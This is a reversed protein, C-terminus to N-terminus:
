TKESALAMEPAAIRGDEQGFVAEAYARGCTCVSTEEECRQRAELSHPHM